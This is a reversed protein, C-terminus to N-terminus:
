VYKIFYCDDSLYTRYKIWIIRFFVFKLCNSILEKLINTCVSLLYRQIFKFWILKFIIIEKIKIFWCSPLYTLIQKLNEQLSPLCWSFPYPYSSPLYIFLLVIIFYVLMSQMLWHILIYTKILWFLQSMSLSYDLSPM